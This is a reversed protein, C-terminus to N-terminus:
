FQLDPYVSMLAVLPDFLYDFADATVVATVLAVACSALAMAPFTWDWAPTTDRRGRIGAMVGATADMAPVAETRAAAALREMFRDASEVTKRDM